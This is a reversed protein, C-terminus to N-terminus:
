PGELVRFGVRGAPPSAAGPAAPAVVLRSAAIGRQILHDRVAGARAAGLRAEERADSGGDGRGAIELRAERNEKLAGVIFSDLVPMEPGEVRSSGKRFTVTKSEVARLDEGPKAHYLGDGGDPCGDDDERGDYDEAADPCRDAADAIRDGDRDSANAAASASPEGEASTRRAAPAPPTRSSASAPSESVPASGSASPAAAPSAPPTGSHPACAPAHLVVSASLWGAFGWVSSRSTVATSRM